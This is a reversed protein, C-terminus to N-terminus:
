QSLLRSTATSATHQLLYVKSDENCYSGNQTTHLGFHGEADNGPHCVAALLLAELAQFQSQQLEVAVPEELNGEQTNTM